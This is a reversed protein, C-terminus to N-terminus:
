FLVKFLENYAILYRNIGDIHTKIIATKGKESLLFAADEVNDMMFNETLVAPMVTHRIIYFSAEFDADGDSFDKRIRREPFNAEAAEYLKSALLDASTEGITTYASWGQPQRWENGMGYAACSGSSAMAPRTPNKQATAQPAPTRPGQLTERDEPSRLPCSPPSDRRRPLNFHFDRLRPLAGSSSVLALSRLKLPAFQSQGSEM